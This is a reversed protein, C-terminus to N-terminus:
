ELDPFQQSKLKVAPWFECHDFNPKILWKQHATSNSKTYAFQVLSPHTMLAHRIYKVAWYIPAWIGDGFKFMRESLVFPMCVACVYFYKNYVLCCILLMVHNWFTAYVEKDIVTLSTSSWIPQLFVLLYFLFGVFFCISWDLSHFLLLMKLALRHIWNCYGHLVDCSWPM